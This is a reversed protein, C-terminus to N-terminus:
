CSRASLNYSLEELLRSLTLGEFGPKLIDSGILLKDPESIGVALMGASKAADIGAQADEFVLCKDPQIGLKGAAKLFVQPDPKSKQIDNGDVFIDFYQRLELRELVLAANKSASALATRGGSRRIELIFEVFGPLVEDRKMGKIYDIYWENKRDALKIKEEETLIIRAMQSLLEMCAIRSVGKFQENDEPTFNYGFEAALRKWALYHYKATDVVVGDLDFIYGEINYINHMGIGMEMGM